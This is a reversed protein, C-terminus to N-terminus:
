LNSGASLASLFWIGAGGAAGLQEWRENVLIIMGAFAPVEAKCFFVCLVM